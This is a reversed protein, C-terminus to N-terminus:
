AGGGGAAERMRVIAAALELDEPTTLKLNTREGEVIPVPGRYRELLVAEDGPDYGEAAAEELVERLIETQVVQPTQALWIVSRDLTCEALKGDSSTKVTDPCPLAVLAAGREAAVEVARDITGPRVLPRAVDHVAVLRAEGAAELGARLSDVRRAGGPVIAEVRALASSTKALARARALDDAHVVLVTRDVHKARRFAEAAHELVTRGGLTLFPKRVDQPGGMRESRGAALLIATAKPSTRRPRRVM